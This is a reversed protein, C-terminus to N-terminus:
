KRLYNGHIERNVPFCGCRSIDRRYKAARVTIARFGM